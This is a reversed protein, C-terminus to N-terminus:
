GLRGSHFALYQIAFYFNKIEINCGGWWFFGINAANAGEDRELCTCPWLWEGALQLFKESLHGHLDGAHVGFADKNRVFREFTERLGLSGFLGEHGLREEKILIHSHALTRCKKKRKKESFKFIKKESSWSISFSNLSLTAISLKIRKSVPSPRSITSFSKALSTM